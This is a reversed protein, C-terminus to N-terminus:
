EAPPLTWLKEDLDVESWRMGGVEERRQGTLILLQVIPGFQGKMAEAARWLAKLEADNLVRDRSKEPARPKVGACPNAAILDSELAWNFLKRLYALVRNAMIPAKRAVIADLLDIIDIRAIDGIKRCGWKAVLGDKVAALTGARGPVPGVRLRASSPGLHPQETQRVKRHVAARRERLQGQGRRQPAARDAERSRIGAASHGSSPRSPEQRAAGLDFAPYPGITFKRSRGAHHYRVAWSKAGGPQIILYLGPLRGDPVECRRQPDPKLKEISAVTLSKAM